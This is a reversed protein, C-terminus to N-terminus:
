GRPARGPGGPHPRAVPIPAPTFRDARPRLTRRVTIGVLAATLALLLGPRRDPPGSRHLPDGGRGDPRVLGMWGTTTRAEGTVTFGLHGAIVHTDASVVRYVITYAGAGGAGPTIGVSLVDGAGDTRVEGDDVRRGAADYVLLPDGEVTAPKAAFSVSVREPPADVTSGDAPTSGTVRAHAATAGAAGAAAPRSAALAATVALLAVAGATVVAARGAITTALAALRVVARRRDFTPTM